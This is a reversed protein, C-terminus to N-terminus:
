AVGSSMELARVTAFEALLFGFGDVFDVFGDLFDFFGGDVVSFVEVIVRRDVGVHVPAAAKMAGEFEDVFGMAVDGLFLVVAEGLAQLRAGDHVDVFGMVVDFFGDRDNSLRDRMEANWFLAATGPGRHKKREKLEFNVGGIAVCGYPCVVL